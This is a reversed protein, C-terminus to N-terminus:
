PKIVLVNFAVAPWIERQDTMIIAWKRRFNAPFDQREGTYYVAIPASQYIYNTGSAGGPNANPTVILIANPDNNCLPHDIVTFDGGVITNTAASRHIFAPTVTGLGAGAVKIGGRNISLAMNTANLAAISVGSTATMSVGPALLGAATNGTIFEAGGTARVRFQQTNVSAFTNTSSSDAWVFVGEHKPQAASGFAVSQNTEFKALQRYYVKLVLPRADTTGLFDTSPETGANGKLKWLDPAQLGDLYDANLGVVLNTNAAPQNVRLINTSISKDPVIGALQDAKLNTIKSGDGALGNVLADANVAHVAYPTTSVLQRPALTVLPDGSDSSHVALELWRASGSFAQSGFDLNLLVLGNSTTINTVLVSGIQNGGVAADFLSSRIEYSGQAAQGGATLQGQYTFASSQALGVSGGLLQIALAISLVLTLKM